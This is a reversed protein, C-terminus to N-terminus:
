KYKQPHGMRRAMQLLPSRWDKYSGAARFRMAAAVMPMIKTMGLSDPANELSPRRPIAKKSQPPEVGSVKFFLFHGETKKGKQTGGGRLTTVAGGAFLEVFARIVASSGVVGGHCAFHELSELGDEGSTRNRRTNLPM